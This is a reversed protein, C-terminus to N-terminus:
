PEEEIIEPVLLNNPDLAELKALAEQRKGEWDNDERSRRTRRNLRILIVQLIALAGSSIAWPSLHIIYWICLLTEVIGFIIFWVYMVADWRRWKRENKIYESYRRVSDEAMEIELKRMDDLFGNFDTM